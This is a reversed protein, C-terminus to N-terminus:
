KDEFIEPYFLRKSKTVTSPLFCDVPNELHPSVSGYSIYKKAIVRKESLKNWYIIKKVNTLHQFM